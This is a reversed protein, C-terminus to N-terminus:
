AVVLRAKLRIATVLLHKENAVGGLAIQLGFVGVDEDPGPRPHGVHRESGAEGIPNQLFHLSRAAHDNRISVVRKTHVKKSLPFACGKPQAKSLLQESSRTEAMRCRDRAHTFGIVPFSPGDASAGGGLRRLRRFRFGRSSGM